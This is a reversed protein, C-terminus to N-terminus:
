DRCKGTFQVFYCPPCFFALVERNKKDALYKEVAWAHGQIPSPTFCDNILRMLPPVVRVMGADILQVLSKPDDAGELMSAVLEALPWEPSVIVVYKIAPDRREYCQQFSAKDIKMAVSNVLQQQTNLTNSM